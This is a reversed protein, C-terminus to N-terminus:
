KMAVGSNWICEAFNIMITFATLFKALDYNSTFNKLNSKGNAPLLLTATWLHEIFFSNQLTKFFECRFM